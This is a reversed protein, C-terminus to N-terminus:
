RTVKGSPPEAKSKRRESFLLTLGIGLVVGAPVCVQLTIRESKEQKAMETEHFAMLDQGAYPVKHRPTMFAPFLWILVSSFLVLLVGTIKQLM